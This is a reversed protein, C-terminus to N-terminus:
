GNVIATINITGEKLDNSIMFYILCNNTEIDQGMSIFKISTNAILSFTNPKCLKNASNNYDDRLSALVAIVENSYVFSDGIANSYKKMASYNLNILQSNFPSINEPEVNIYLLSTTKYEDSTNSPTNIVNPTTIYLLYPKNWIKTPLFSVTLFVHNKCIISEPFLM